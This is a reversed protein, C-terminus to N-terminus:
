EEENEDKDAQSPLPCQDTDYVLSGITMNPCDTGLGNELSCVYEIFARLRTEYDSRSLKALGDDSISPYVTSDLATFGSCLDYDHSYTGKIVTLTKNRAYGTNVYAM